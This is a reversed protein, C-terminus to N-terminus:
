ENLNHLSENFNEPIQDGKEVLSGLKVGAQKESEEKIFM